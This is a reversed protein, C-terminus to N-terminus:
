LIGFRALRGIDDREFAVEAELSERDRGITVVALTKQGTRLAVTCDREAVRGSVDTRDWRKANGVYAIRVDYHQSWFFPVISCPVNQGLMNKAAIQGQREAVVWHEVRLNQGSHPDPWRAIDGAAFVGPASTALYQDVIVGRDVAIGAKEALELRPRVGIGVVVLDAPLTAGTALTVNKADISRPTTELHFVVGHEEHLARVFNGIETGMIAELPRPDPAVVHVELGRTRLAAAAELGIFSAGIVVVRKAKKSAEIIARSDALARLYHVHGLDHGPITLKVPEGGTALLLADYPISAGAETNITKTTPHIAAVRTGLVLEIRNETFFESLRLPIWEEPATGALYDKSLNPRDVPSVTEASVMLIKGGYGERRLMEAAAQGAAGGGVIVIQKPPPGSLKKTPSAEKKSLVYLRGDRQEVAWCAVPNLAPAAVAEGTRLSFCAHHLPCRIKDGDVIGEALPGGYHTCTADVAFVEDGRRVVVVPDTGAHGLVPKGDPVEAVQVGKGFDPGSLETAAGGM